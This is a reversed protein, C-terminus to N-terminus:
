GHTNSCPMGHLGPLTYYHAPDLDYVEMCMKRFRKFVDALILVDVKLYGDSYDGINKCDLIAYIQKAIDYEEVTLHTDNLINYFKEIPPLETEEM